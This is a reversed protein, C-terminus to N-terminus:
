SKRRFAGRESDEFYEGKEMAAAFGELWATLSPATPVAEPQGRWCEVVPTGPKTTDLCVYDDQDDDLFPILGPKWGNRPEAELEKKAQAIQETSLLFFSREFAGFVEPNQGNHWQLLTRLEGPLPSGLAVALADCETDSAGSLLGSHYGSRHKAFWYDIQALAASIGHPVPTPSPSSTATVAPASAPVPAADASPAPPNPSPAPPESSPTPPKEGGQKLIKLAESLQEASPALKTTAAHIVGSWSLVHPPRRSGVPRLSVGTEDLTVAVRESGVEIERTLSRTFKQM